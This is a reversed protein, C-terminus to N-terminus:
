RARSPADHVCRAFMQNAPAFTSQFSIQGVDFGVRWAWDGLDPVTTLAWYLCGLGTEHQCYGAVEAPWYEGNPGPGTM